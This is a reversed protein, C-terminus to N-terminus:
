VVDHWVFAMSWDQLTEEDGAKVVTALRHASVVSPACQLGMAGLVSLGSEVISCPDAEEKDITVFVKVSHAENLTRSIDQLSTTSAMVSDDAETPRLGIVGFSSAGDTSRLSHHSLLYSGGSNPIAEQLAHPVDEYAVTLTELHATPRMAETSDGDDDEQLAQQRQGNHATLQWEVAAGRPLDSEGLQAYLMPLANSGTLSTKNVIGAEGFLWDHGTTAEDDDQDDDDDDDSSQAEWCAVATEVANDRDGAIWCIGGEIWGKGNRGREELLAAFIRRAHQLSLAYQQLADSPLSLDKPLLGIQGAITMRSANMVAQSYPGINASAWYSLSQVHLCQRDSHLDSADDDYAWGDLVVRHGSSRRALHPLAVTARSPPSRSFHKKYVQNAAAFSDQSELALNIHQIAKGDLSYRSLEAQLNRFADFVEEELSSTPDSAVIGNFAVWKGKRKSSTSFSPRTSSTARCLRAAKPRQQHDEQRAKSAARLTRQGLKDLPEPTVVSDLSAASKANKPVLRTGGIKLYAVGSSESFTDVQGLQISNTKFLPCDLTLTEYEGGEGCVHSGYKAELVKLKPQMQALTKGLDREDLGAGAVKILISEMGASVMESLLETQNRQWLYALPVLGLRVCIREIRVRQYNSLIAGASVAEVEPHEAKVKSLLQHLDDMDNEDQKASHEEDSSTSITQRYLPLGIAAAIATTGQAVGISQWMYSDLEDKGALPPCLTALAVIEHGQKM